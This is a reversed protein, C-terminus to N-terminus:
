VAAELRDESKAKKLPRRFKLGLLTFRDRSEAWVAEAEMCRFSGLADLWPPNPIELRLRGRPQAKRIALLMGGASVNLATGFEVFEKGCDDKGRAFVPFSIALREWQRSKQKKSM